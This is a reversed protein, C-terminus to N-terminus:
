FILQSFSKYHSFLTFKKAIKLSNLKLKFKDRFNELEKFKVMFNEINNNEFIIGNYNHKILEVPGPWSNSSLTPARCYFAEVLVFGPDEWLSSLIFGNSNKFYPYINPVYGLLIINEQLNNINIFNRIKSEDEGNGAILLKLTKNEEVLKKFAKCLFIFNKQKTLRGVSLFYNKYNVKQKKKINLEKVDIIPDLLLKIKNSKILNLNKLYNLTNETPCTVLYIKKFAIKWLLKRFFNMRPYGSIRLIFKTEFKFLILLILPLSSILHIILYDPKHRKLIKKLPFFGLVFFIIFSFRSKIKGRYPLFKSFNFKYYNLIKIKKKQIEYELNGFENFLNLITTEFNQGYRILSNASNIVAKTTAIPSLFPSWYYIKKKM